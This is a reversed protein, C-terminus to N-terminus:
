RTERSLANQPFLRKKALSSLPNQRRQKGKGQKEEEEGEEDPEGALVSSSLRLLRVASTPKQHKKGSDCQWSQCRLTRGAPATHNRCRCPFPLLTQKWPLCLPSRVDRECRTCWPAQRTKLRCYFGEAAALRQVEKLTLPESKNWVSVLRDRSAILDPFFFFTGFPRFRNERCIEKGPFASEELPAFSPERPPSPSQVYDKREAEPMSVSFFPDPRESVLGSPDLTRASGKKCFLVCVNGVLVGIPKVAGPQRLLSVASPERRFLM